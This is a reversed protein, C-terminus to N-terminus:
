KSMIEIRYLKDQDVELLDGYLIITDKKNDIICAYGNNKVYEGNFSNCNEKVSSSLLTDNIRLKKGELEQIYFTAKTVIGKEISVDKNKPNTIEVEGLRSSYTNLDISEIVENKKLTEPLKLKFAINLFEVDDYGVTISYDDISIVDFDKRSTCGSLMLLLILLVIIKKM